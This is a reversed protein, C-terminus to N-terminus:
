LWGKTHSWGTSHFSPAPRTVKLTSPDTSPNGESDIIWGEPLTKGQNLAVRTKEEAVVSTTMDVM